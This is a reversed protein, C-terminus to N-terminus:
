IEKADFLWGGKGGPPELTTHDHHGGAQLRLIGSADRQIIVVGEVPFHIDDDQERSQLTQSLLFVDGDPRSFLFLGHMRHGLQRQDEPTDLQGSADAVTIIQDKRVVKLWESNASLPIHPDDYSSMNINNYMWVDFNGIM